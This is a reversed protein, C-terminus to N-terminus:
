CLYKGFFLSLEKADTAKWWIHIRNLYPFSYRLREYFRGSLFNVADNSADVIKLTRYIENLQRAAVNTRLLLILSLRCTEPSQYKIFGRKIFHLFPLQLQEEEYNRRMIEGSDWDGDEGISFMKEYNTKRM